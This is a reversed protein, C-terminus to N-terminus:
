LLNVGPILKLLITVLGLVLAVLGTARSRASAAAIAGLVVSAIGAILGFGIGLVPVWAGLFGLISVILALCGVM